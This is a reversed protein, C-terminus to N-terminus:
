IRRSPRRRCRLGAATRYSTSTSRRVHRYISGLNSSGYNRPFGFVLKGGLQSVKHAFYFPVVELISLLQLTIYMIRM